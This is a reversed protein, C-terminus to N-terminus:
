VEREPVPVHLMFAWMMPVMSALIFVDRWILLPRVFTVATLHSQAAYPAVIGTTTYLVMFASAILVGRDESIPGADRRRPRSITRAAIVAILIARLPATWRSFQHLDEFLPTIIAWAVVYGYGALRVADAARRTVQYPALAYCALVASVPFYFHAVLLRVSHDDFAKPLLRAFLGVVAWAWTFRCGSDLQRWRVVGFLTLLIHTTILLGDLLQSATM